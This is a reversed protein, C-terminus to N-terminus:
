FKTYGEPGATYFTNQDPSKIPLNEKMLKVLNPNAIFPRGFAVLDGKDAVLDNEAKKADYGGSLIYAGKFNKRIAEKIEPSVPPAGMSSHDVVHIHALGIESLKQALETYFSDIGSFPGTENFVGYPSVRIGLRNAGIKKAVLSAVELVFRMRGHADKGYADTRKNVNPNLFQELLYGNAAHLEVGDFGAEIAMQASYVFDNQAQKIEELTMEKPIPYPQMGNADTWMTGGLLIASPALITAGKPMNEPHSVRGTHMLQVFIKGNNAHVAKTVKKWGDVQDKNFLGPIRAYGLGNPSPSTGETIILGASARAGYYEAMLDNPINNIARCRTMPSMVIRNKLKINGITVEQFLKEM